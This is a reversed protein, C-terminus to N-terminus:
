NDGLSVLSSKRNDIEVLPPCPSDQWGKNEDRVLLTGRGHRAGIVFGGKIVKPIIAIGKADALMRQPIAQAPIAMIENLVAISSRVSEEERGQGLATPLELTIGTMFMALLFALKCNGCYKKLMPIM